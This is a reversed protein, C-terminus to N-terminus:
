QGLPAELERESAACAGGGLTAPAAAESAQTEGGMAGFAQVPLHYNALVVQTAPLAEDSILDIGERGDGDREPPGTAAAADPGGEGEAPAAGVAAEFTSFVDVLQVPRDDTGPAVRDPAHVLLPVRTTSEYLSFVHNVHGHDGINEGHDSTVIVVADDLGRTRELADVIRGLNM